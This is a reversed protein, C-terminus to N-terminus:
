IANTFFTLSKHLQYHVVAGRGALPLGRGGLPIESQSFKETLGDEYTSVPLLDFGNVPSSFSPLEPSVM